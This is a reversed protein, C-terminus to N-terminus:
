VLLLLSTLLHEARCISKYETFPALSTVGMDWEKIISVVGMCGGGEETDRGELM